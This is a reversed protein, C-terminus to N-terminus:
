GEDREAIEGATRAAEAVYHPASEADYRAAFTLPDPCWPYSLVDLQGAAIEGRVMIAPLCALGLGEVTMQICASMNTSAVLRPPRGAAGALHDRLQAFPLTGKAHTLIAHGELDAIGLDRGGLDLARAGVWILPFSGLAVDGSAPRDFPASQLALDIARNSLAETLNASFDVTLDIDINAFREKLAALYTGLWSHVIMETVGLRLVGDFIHDDGAAVLFQDIASGVARAKPLLRAGIHTLRVSGADREMLTVGLQAELAAIRTSINPQTTNLREAARRFSGLDAVQIFADLHKLNIQAM